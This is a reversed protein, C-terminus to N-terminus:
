GWSFLPFVLKLGWHFIAIGAITIGAALLAADRLSNERDGLAAIFVTAFTAPVLGGWRGLVVFAAVGGLICGWGRWQFGSWEGHKPLAPVGAVPANLGSVAGSDARGFRSTIAILLGIVILLVGLVVPVYGAGMRTLSGMQYSTGEWVVVAGLAVMLAAGGLDRAMKPDKLMTEMNPRDGGARPDTGPAGRADDDPIGITRDSTPATEARTAGSECRNAPDVAYAIRPLAQM